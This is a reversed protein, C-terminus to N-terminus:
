DVGLDLLDDALNVPGLLLAAGLVVEFQLADRLDVCLRKSDLLAEGASEVGSGLEERLDLLLVLIENPLHVRVCNVLIVDSLLDVVDLVQDPKQVELYALLFGGLLLHRRSDVSLFRNLCLLIPSLALHDLPDCLIDLLLHLRELGM